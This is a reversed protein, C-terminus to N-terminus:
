TCENNSRETILRQYLRRVVRKAYDIRSLNKSMIPLGFFTYGVVSHNQTKRSDLVTYTTDDNCVIVYPNDLNKSKIIRLRESDDNSYSTFVM